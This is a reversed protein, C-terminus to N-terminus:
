VLVVVTALLALVGVLGVIGRLLSLLTLIRSCGVVGRLLAAIWWSGVISAPSGRLVLVGGLWVVSAGRGTM